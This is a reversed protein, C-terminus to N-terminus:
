LIPIIDCIARTMPPLCVNSKSRRRVRPHQRVLAPPRHTDDPQAVVGGLHWRELVLPRLPVSVTRPGQRVLARPRPPVLVAALPIYVRRKESNIHHNM